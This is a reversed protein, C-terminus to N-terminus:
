FLVLGAAFIDVSTNWAGHLQAEPARFCRTGFNNIQDFNSTSQGFDLLKVAGSAAISVNELKVDAHALGIEHM